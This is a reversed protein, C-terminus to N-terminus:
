KVSISVNNKFAKIIENDSIESTGFIIVEDFIKKSLKDISPKFMDFYKALKEADEKSMLRVDGCEEFTDEPTKTGNFSLKDAEM